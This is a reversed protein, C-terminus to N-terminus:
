DSIAGGGTDPHETEPPKINAAKRQCILRIETETDNGRTRVVTYQDGNYDLLTEGMYVKANIEFQLELRNGQAAANWYENTAVELKQAYVKRRVTPVIENGIDDFYPDGESLLYIVKNKRVTKTPRTRPLSAM